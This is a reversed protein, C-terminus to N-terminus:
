RPRKIRLRIGTRARRPGTDTLWQRLLVWLSPKVPAAGAEDTPPAPPQAEPFLRVFAACAESVPLGIAAAYDRFFSRRFIGNPWRRLDNRELGAFLYAPIKTIEAIRDLTIGQRERAAKMALCFEEASYAHLDETHSPM